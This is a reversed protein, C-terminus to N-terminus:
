KHGQTYRGFAQDALQTLEILSDAFKIPFNLLKEFRMRIMKQELARGPAPSFNAGRRSAKNPESRDRQASAVSIWFYEPIAGTM